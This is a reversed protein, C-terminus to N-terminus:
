RTSLRRCLERFRDPDVGEARIDPDLDLVALAEAIVAKGPQESWRATLSNVLKKRRQAFAADIFPGLRSWEDATPRQGAVREFRLVAANVRPVPFFREAPVELRRTVRWWYALKVTLIGYERGGPPSCIRDAVERQVMVTISDWPARPRCQGFLLPSTIQFPLNGTLVVPPGAERALADLDARLADGYVFGIRADDAFADEHLPRMRTDAEIALVRRARAALFTTLTGPGPGIEVASQAGAEPLALEAIEALLEADHLFHQGLKRQQWIRKLKLQLWLFDISPGTM